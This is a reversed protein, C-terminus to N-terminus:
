LLKFTVAAALLAKFHFELASPKSVPSTPPLMTNSDVVVAESSEVNDFYDSALANLGGDAIVQKVLGRKVEFTEMPTALPEMLEIKNRMVGWM